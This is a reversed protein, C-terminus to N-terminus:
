PHGTAIAAVVKRSQRVLEDILATGVLGPTVTLPLWTHGAADTEATPWHRHIRDVAQQYHGTKAHVRIWLPNGAARAPKRVGVAVWTDSPHARVYRRWTFDPDNKAGPM